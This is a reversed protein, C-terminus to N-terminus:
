KEKYLDRYYQELEKKADGKVGPAAGKGSFMGAEIMPSTSFGMIFGMIAAMIVIMVWLSNRM